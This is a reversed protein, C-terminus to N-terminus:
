LDKINIDAIEEQQMYGTYPNKIARKVVFAMVLTVILPITSILISVIIAGGFILGFDSQPGGPFVVEFENPITTIVEGFISQETLKFMTVTSIGTFILSVLFFIPIIFRVFGTKKTCIFYQIVILIISFIM